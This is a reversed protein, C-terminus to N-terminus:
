IQEHKYVFNPEYDIFGAKRQPNVDLFFKFLNKGLPCDDHLNCCTELGQTIEAGSFGAKLLASSGCWKEGLSSFLFFYVRLVSAKLDKLFFQRPKAFLTVYGM